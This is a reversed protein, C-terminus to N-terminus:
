SRLDRYYRWLEPEPLLNEQLRRWLGAWHIVATAPYRPTVIRGNRVELNGGGAWRECPIDLRQTRMAISSLSDYNFGSTVFLYNLFPQEACRLQMHAALRLAAPLQSEVYDLSLLGCRSGIFGTSASYGIQKESLAGTEVISPQWVWQRLGRFDSHSALFDVETLFPFVFDLNCLIVADTDVYLFHDYQGTWMALKRYEGKVSGHFQRSIADCRSLTTQDQWVEFHYEPQLALIRDVQDDFPIFCLRRTPNYARLSNLFPVAFEYIADNALFYMTDSHHM